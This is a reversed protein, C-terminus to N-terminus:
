KSPAPGMKPTFGRPTPTSWSFSPPFSELEPILEPEPILELEVSPPKSGSITFM